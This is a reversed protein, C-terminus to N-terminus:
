RLPRTNFHVWEPGGDLSDVTQKALHTTTRIPVFNARPRRGENRGASREWFAVLVGWAGLVLVLACQLVIEVPPYTFPQQMAKLYERHQIACVTVHALLLVSAAVALKYFRRGVGM